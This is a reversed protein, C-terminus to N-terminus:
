PLQKGLKETCTAEFFTVRPRFTQKKAEWSVANWCLKSASRISGSHIHCRQFSPKFLTSEQALKLARNMTWELKARSHRQLEYIM